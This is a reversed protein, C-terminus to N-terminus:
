PEERRRRLAAAAALGLVAASSPAPIIADLHTTLTRLSIATAQEALLPNLNTGVHIHGAAFCRFPADPTNNVDAYWAGLYGIYGSLFNGGFASSSVSNPNYPAIFPQINQGAMGSSVNSVIQSMPLSSLRIRGVPESAIPVNTPYGQADYDPFYLPVQRQGSPITEGPLRWRQYAPELVWGVTSNDRSFTIIAAPRIQEVIRAFDAATDQYDVEFDGSGRGWNPGSQGPFEPFFAHIDYGRGEWNGGIWGQPNQSANESFRRIMGNTPPWYGTILINNTFNQAHAADAVLIVGLTMQVALCSRRM